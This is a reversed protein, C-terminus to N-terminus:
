NLLYKNPEEKLFIIMQYVGGGFFVWILHNAIRVRHINKGYSQLTAIIQGTKHTLLRLHLQYAFYLGSWEREGRM